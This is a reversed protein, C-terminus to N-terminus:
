AAIRPRDGPRHAATSCTRRRKDRRWRRLGDRVVRLYARIEDSSQEQQLSGPAFRAVYHWSVIARMAAVLSADGIQAAIADVHAMPPQSSPKALGAHRLSKLLARYVVPQRHTRVSRIGARSVRDRRQARAAKIRRVVVPGIVGLAAVLAFAALGRALSRGVIRFARPGRLMLGVGSLRSMRSELRSLFGAGLVRERDANDYAVVNSIWWYQMADLADRVGGWLGGPVEHAAALQDPPSPDFATWLGANRDVLAEVWAHANSERVLFRGTNENFESAAYGTVVRAPVDVSRCLAAMASAFYECHGKKRSFLFMDIPDQGAKASALETTYTYNTQLYREFATAKQKASPPSKADLPISAQSLVQLALDHVRGEKFQTDMEPARQRSRLPADPQSIVTYELLGKVNTALEFDEDGVTLRRIHDSAVEVPRIMAFLHVSAKNRLTIRQIYTAAGSAIRPLLTAPVSPAMRILTSRSRNREGRRWSGDDYVDLVAGRLLVRGLSAGVNRGKEDTVELELVPAASQSLIGKGGLDVKDNFGTQAGAAPAEFTGFLGAGISRPMLVFVAVAFAISGLFAAGAVRGLARDGASAPSLSAQATAAGPGLTKHSELACERGGYLQLSMATWVALPMYIALALGTALANSTLCAGIVLFASALFLAGLDRLASRDFLKLLLIFVIFISINTVLEGPASFGRLAVLAAAAIALLNLATKPIPRGQPCFSVPWSLLWVPMALVAVLASHAALAYAAISLGVLMFLRLKARRIARM